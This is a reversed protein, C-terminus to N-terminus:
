RAMGAGKDRTSGVVRAPAGVAVSYDPIRGRVVSGAGIICQEGIDSGALIVSNAGVLTGRGIRIPAADLPNYLPNPNGGRFTHESDVVTTCASMIVDDEIDISVAASLTCWPRLGVRDGIRLVPGDQGWAQREVAIWLGTLLMCSEGISTKHSGYVWAPKHLISSPGFAAFQRLRYPRQLRARLAVAHLPEERWSRVRAAVQASKSM